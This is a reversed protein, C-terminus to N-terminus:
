GQRRLSPLYNSPSLACSCWQVGTEGGHPDASRMTVMFFVLWSRLFPQQDLPGIAISFRAFVPQRIQVLADLPSIQNGHPLLAPNDFLIIQFQFLFQAQPVKLATSPAFEMMVGCKADGSITEPRPFSGNKERRLGTM